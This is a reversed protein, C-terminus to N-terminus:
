QGMFQNAIAGLSQLPGSNAVGGVTEMIASTNTKQGLNGITQVMFEGMLARKKASLKAYSCKEIKADLVTAIKYEEDTYDTKDFDIQNYVDYINSVNVRNKEKCATLSGDTCYYTSVVVPYKYWIMEENEKGGYWDYCIIDNENLDAAVRVSSEYGGTPGDPCRKMNLASEMEDATKAGTKALEKVMKNVFTIEQSTPLCEATLEKQQQTLQRVGGIINLVTPLLSAGADAVDTQKPAVPAAKKITVAGAVMCHSAFVVGVLFAFSKKM